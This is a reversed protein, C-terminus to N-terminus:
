ESNGGVIINIAVGKLRPYKMSVNRFIFKTGKIKQKM